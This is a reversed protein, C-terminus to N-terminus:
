ALAEAPSGLARFCRARALYHEARSSCKIAEAFAEAAKAYRGLQFLGRGRLGLAQADNPRAEIYTGLTRLADADQGDELYQESIRLLNEMVGQNFRLRPESTMM